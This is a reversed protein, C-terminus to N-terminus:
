ADELESPDWFVPTFTTLQNGEAALRWGIQRAPGYWSAPDDPTPDLRMTITDGADFDLVPMPCTEEALNLTLDWSQRGYRMLRLKSAAFADLDAQEELTPAPVRSMWLPTGAAVSTDDVLLDSMPRSEGSGDGVAQVATAFARGPTWDRPRKRGGVAVHHNEVITSEIVRGIRPGIEIVKEFRSQNADAWRVRTTWEPGSLRGTLDNIASAVTRDEYWSYTQDSLRGCDTVDLDFGFGPAIDDALLTEIIRSEDVQDFEHDRCVWAEAAVELSTLRITVLSDGPEPATVVYGHLPLSNLDDIVPVIMSRGAGLMNTWGDPTYQSRTPLTAAATMKASVTRELTGELSLPLEDIVQGTVLDALLWRLNM